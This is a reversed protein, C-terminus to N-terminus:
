RWTHRASRTYTLKSNSDIARRVSLLDLRMDGAHQYRDNADKALARDIINQAELPVTANFESLSPTPENIIATLTEVPSDREFARKGTLAEFLVLGLSFIDTRSDVQTGRAQEPSMYSVTGMLVGPATELDSVAGHPAAPRSETLKALGFDLVKVLGDERIMVNEPKIDRHFIGNRHAAELASAIQAGIDLSEAVRLKGIRERLTSGKVYESVIYRSGEFKATKHITLINPHNLASAARAEQEFRQIRPRDVVHPPLVKI